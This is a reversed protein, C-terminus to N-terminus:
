RERQGPRTAPRPRPVERPGDGHNRVRYSAYVRAKGIPGAAFARVRLALPPHVREVEPIPLFGADLAQATRADRWSLTRGNAVLFPELSFAGKAVELMGDADLLAEHSDGEVGIVTWFTAEGRLYRPLWGAPSQRALDQLAAIADDSARPPTEPAEAYASAFAACAALLSAAARAAFSAM